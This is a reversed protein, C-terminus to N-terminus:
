MDMMVYLSSFPIVLLITNFVEQCFPTFPDDDSGEPQDEKAIKLTSKGEGSGEGRINKLVGTKEIIRWQEEEPIHEAQPAGSSNPPSQLKKRQRAM